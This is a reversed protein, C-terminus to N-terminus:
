QSNRKRTDKDSKEELRHSTARTDQSTSQITQLTHNQQNVTDVLKDVVQGRNYDQVAYWLMAVSIITGFVTIIRDGRRSKRTDQLDVRGEAKVREEEAGAQRNLWANFQSITEIHADQVQKVREMDEELSKTRALLSPRGNDECVIRHLKAAISEDNGGINPM